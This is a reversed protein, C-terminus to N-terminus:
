YSIDFRGNKLLLREYNKRSYPEVSECYFRYTDLIFTGSIIKTITDLRSIFITGSGFTEVTDKKIRTGARFFEQYNNMQEYFYAENNNEGEREIKYLGNSFYDDLLDRRLVIKLYRQYKDKADIFISDKTVIAQIDDEGAAFIKFNAGHNSEFAVINEGTQTIPPLTEINEKDCAGILFTIILLVSLKKM